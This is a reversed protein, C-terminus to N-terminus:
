PTCMRKKSRMYIYVFDAVMKEDEKMIDRM